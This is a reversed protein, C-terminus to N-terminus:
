FWPGPYHGDRDQVMVIEKCEGNAGPATEGRCVLTWGSIRQFPRLAWNSAVPDGAPLDIVSFTGGSGTLYLHDEFFAVKALSLKRADDRNKLFDWQQGRLNWVGFGFQSNDRNHGDVFLKGDSLAATLGGGSIRDSDGIKIVSKADLDYFMTSVEAPNAPDRRTLQVLKSSGDTLEADVSVVDNDQYIEEGGPRRLRAGPTQAPDSSRTFALVDPWVRAPEPDSWLTSLDQGSLVVTRPPAAAAHGDTVANLWAVGSATSALSWDKPAALRQDPAPAQLDKTVLPQGSTLDFVYGTTKAATTVVYVVRLQEATGTLACIAGTVTEGAPVSPVGPALYQGTKPDFVKPRIDQLASKSFSFRQPCGFYATGGYSKWDKELPGTMPPAAASDPGAKSTSKSTSTTATLPPAPVTDSCSALALCGLAALAAGRSAAPRRRATPWRAARM